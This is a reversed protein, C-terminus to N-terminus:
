NRDVCALAQLARGARLINRAANVDAHDGHGCSCCRFVAQSVRNGAEVHGCEACTQSTYRPDVTVVVRGASEAKYSLLTALQGWGADHISRNLGAKAAAGNPLFAGLQNPDPKARPRQVMTTIALVELVILDYENVLRRSLQHAANKRQNAVQRHLRAVVEVQRRRRKSGRQKSSLRRQEEKLRHKANGGFHAGVILEGDSTAVVNTIGLDVGVEHGTPALPVAPVDACRASLWWKTGERKVTIAKPVGVLPRHFNTKVEGIGLLYLRSIDAKIKWGAKDEWQLSDFRSASKFRPFGPTEGNGTRRYFAIFARDLRKLTGRCLTIGSSMVEPRVENLGTLTRCQNFYTVSRKEWTWAGIREELAANYLERQHNLQAGLARTQRVTPHLRYRFTRCRLADTAMGSHYATPTV